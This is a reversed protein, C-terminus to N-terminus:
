FDRPHPRTLTVCSWKKKKLNLIHCYANYMAREAAEPIFDRLTLFLETQTCCVSATASNFDANQSM